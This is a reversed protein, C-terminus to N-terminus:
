HPRPASRVIVVQQEDQSRVTQFFRYVSDHFKVPILTGQVALQRTQHLGADTNENAVSYVFAKLDVTQGPPTSAVAFGPPLTITVDDDQRYPYSFYIPHVREAHTFMHRGAGAFVAAPMLWRSGASTVWGSVKVNFEAVLVPASSEWDPQNVLEVDIIVPVDSQLDKELDRKRGVADEHREAVRESHAELGTYTVTVHGELSGRDTLHLMAKHEIRSDAAPPTPTTIWTVGSRALILGTVGTEEWPLLGYPVYASGPDFWLDNGADRVRVVNTNLEGANEAKANFFYTDRTSVYVPDAEMGAARLLALFLWTLQDGTGYGHEWVDAADHNSKSKDRLAEDSESRTDYSLNRMRQVRQYIKRRKEEPSDGPAVITALAKEMARRHDVFSDIERYSERSYEAWFHEFDTARTSSSYVFDVRQKLANEPPMYEETVFAPVDHTELEIRGRKEAPAPSGAPLGEPWSWALTFYQNKVLTYKGHRTFLDDNLIWHSDFVYLPDLHRRFRYEVISGAQVEGLTFTKAMYRVGRAKVIPTDYIKGDFRAITGDPRITRAEIAVIREHQANFPIEVNGYKRGEDTLIKLRIYVREDSASDDRDVQHYLYIAPARPAKPEETMHLEEPTVPLWDEARAQAGAAVLGTAVAIIRLARM